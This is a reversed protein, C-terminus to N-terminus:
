QWECTSFVLHAEGRSIQRWEGAALRGLTLRGVAVRKLARVELGAAAVMRRVQRYKGERIAIILIRDDNADRRVRAPSTRFGGPLEVGGALRQIDADGASKDCMAEYVKEVNFGPHTARFTYDGDDTLVLLGSTDYDLRGVPYIRAKIENQVLDVVTKRGYQDKASSIVGVPKNMLIYVHPEGAGSRQPVVVPAGDVALRAGPPAKVGMESVVSGDVSVRGARILAECRRRSGVGAAALLKQIRVPESEDTHAM